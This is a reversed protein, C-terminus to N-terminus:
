RQWVEDLFNCLEADLRKPFIRWEAISKASVLRANPLERAVLDADSFPHIPDAKHGIVLTPHRLGRRELLPPAVRGFTMGDLVALSARPDRRIFDLQLDVLFASRPVKRLIASVVRMGPVHLRLLLALPVFVGAAGALGNELVPMEVVMARVRDPALVTAELTVNAGLSTGGIVAQPLELHDLLAIVDAGFQPMSYKTMDHPQDSFGHGLMDPLIVRNGRAALVPALKVFMRGDMLLGHTMVIPRPGDGVIRFAIRRGKHVFSEPAPLTFSSM